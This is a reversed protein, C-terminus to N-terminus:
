EAKRARKHVPAPAVTEAPWKDALDALWEALSELALMDEIEREKRREWEPAPLGMKVALRAAAAKVAEQARQRRAALIGRDM